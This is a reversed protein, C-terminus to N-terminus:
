KCICGRALGASATAACFRASLTDHDGWPHQCTSCREIMETEVDVTSTATTSDSVPLESATMKGEGAYRTTGLDHGPRAVEAGAFIVTRSITETEDMTSPEASNTVGANRVPVPPQRPIASSWPNKGHEAFNGSIM